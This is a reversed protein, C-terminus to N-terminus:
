SHSVSASNIDPTPPSHLAYSLPSHLPFSRSPALTLIFPFSRECHSDGSTSWTHALSAGETDPHNEWIQLLPFKAKSVTLLTLRSSLSPRSIGIDDGGCDGGPRTKCKIHSWERQGRCPKSTIGRHLGLLDNEIM